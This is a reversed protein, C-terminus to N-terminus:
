WLVNYICDEQPGNRIIIRQRREDYHWDVGKELPALNREVRIPPEEARIRLLHAKVVGQLTYVQAETRQSAMVEMTGSGDTHHVTMTRTDHPYLNLTLFDEWDRDGIGTYDRQIHMPIIAGERVYVPFEDLPFDRTITAPGAIVEADDFFYRWRGRPLSVTRTPSPEHIPAVLLDEGFLYHYPAKQPRMLPPGGAHGLAVYSYIYPVLETRLWSFQRIIELEEPTRLWLRREGHGGNLFLGTFTSYQAWRIYLEPPIPIGGHYGGIDSGIVNYGLRASRLTTRLAREIGRDEDKWVHQNDGVWNVPSATVPSFGWPHIWPLPSDLPRSLTIFERNQTLGHEYEDRYYHDMYQRTTMWGSRTRAFPLLLPGLRTSAYTATGDLKWGDVGWDLVQQQLGRWWVMAEPNRYDIMGGRGKWWGYERGGDLLYGRELAEQHWDAADRIATDKNERNVMCTMWLVVRYGQEQLQGFFQEPQPYLAEDVVFDNYRLSWPSDILITRVPIDHAAYGELLEQVFEATNVDDEWLWCELAWAPTLPPTGRHAMGFPIGWFPWLFLLFALLLLVILALIGGRVACSLCGRRRQTTGPLENTM